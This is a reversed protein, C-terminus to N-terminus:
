VGVHGRLANMEDARAMVILVQGAELIYDAPPNYVHQGDTQRVAVVLADGFARFNAHALTAGLLKSDPLLVLEEIRRNAERDRLMNDLFQVVTPRLMQSAMRVGGIRSPSVIVDAGARRLKDAAEDKVCKSVIRLKENLARSSITVYLNDRDDTLAAVIGRAREIGAEILAHDLTAEDIVYLFEGIEEELREIKSENRDVVVFPINSDTLEGVVHKGTAGVGCVIVHDSIHELSRRMRNRRVLGGLDGEVIIATLTSAFYLLTGSGLLILTVTWPRAYPVTDMNPLTESFGVTSLTVVAMYLCESLDWRGDGIFWYGYGGVVIASLFAAAAPLLRNVASTSNRLPSKVTPPRDM